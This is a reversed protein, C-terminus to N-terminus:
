SQRHINNKRKRRQVLISGTHFTIAAIIASGSIIGGILLIQRLDPILTIKINKKYIQDGVQMTIVYDNNTLFPVDDFTATIKKTGNPPLYDLVYNKTSGKTTIKVIIKKAPVFGINRIIFDGKINVKPFSYSPFTDSIKFKAKENDLANEAFKIEVDKSDKSFKYGGAPIPYESDMGKIVFAVHSFDLSNFYDMGKTTNGWTPDIMIWRKEKNDYYEPWAHLVDNVLSVPRIKSNRTYAYGEVMRAPIGKARALTIFLDSFELCVSNDPNKISGAGGLRESTTAVKSHNYTLTKVVYDYIEKPTSLKDAIKRIEQDTVWNKKSATYEKLQRSTLTEKIKKDSLVIYGKVIIKKKQQPLLRYEAIWNGDIDTVVDIPEESFYQIVSDQMSTEPPLAIETRVPFLNPNSINYTLNFNYIQKEGFLMFIGSKTIQDKSIKVEGNEFNLEPKSISSKGFNEPVQITINYSEFDDVREIGPITLEWISGEKRGIDKTEFKLTFINNRNLGTYKKPFSLKIAKGNESDSVTTPISGDSNQAEVKEINDIGTIVTYSPTFYFETKNTITIKQTVYTVGNEDVKYVVDAKLSFQDSKADAKLIPLMLFVLCTLLLSKFFRM